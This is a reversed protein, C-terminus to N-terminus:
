ACYYIIRYDPSPLEIEAITKLFARAGSALQYMYCNTFHYKELMLSELSGAKYARTVELAADMLDDMKVEHPVNFAGMPYLDKLGLVANWFWDNCVTICVDASRAAVHFGSVSRGDDDMIYGSCHEKLHQLVDEKGFADPKFLLLRSM